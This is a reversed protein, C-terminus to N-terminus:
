RSCYIDNSLIRRVRSANEYASDELKYVLIYADGEEIKLNDYAEQISPDKSKPPKEGTLMGASYAKPMKIRELSFDSIRGQRKLDGLMHTLGTEVLPNQTRTFFGGLQHEDMLINIREKNLREYVGQGQAEKAVAAGAFYVRPKDPLNSRDFTYRPSTNRDTTSFGVVQNRDNLALSVYDGKVHNMADNRDFNPQGFASKVCSYIDEAYPGLDKASRVNKFTMFRYPSHSFRERADNEVSKGNTM